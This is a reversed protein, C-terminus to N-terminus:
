DSVRFLDPFKRLYYATVIGLIAFDDLVGFVPITDPILDFVTILYFLAGYASLKEMQTLKRSRIVAGLTTIRRSWEEGLKRFRSIEKKNQRVESQHQPSAGIESLGILVKDPHSQGQEMSSVSFGLAHIAAAFSLNPSDRMVEQAVLSEPKIRDDLILSYVGKRVLPEYADPLVTDDPKKLLRRLTMGSLEIRRGFQEPSSGAEKLLGRLVSLKM